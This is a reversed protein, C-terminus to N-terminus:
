LYPTEPLSNRVLIWGRRKALLGAQIRWGNPGFLRVCPSQTASLSRDLLRQAPLQTLLSQTGLRATVIRFREGASRDNRAENSREEIGVSRCDRNSGLLRRRARTTM